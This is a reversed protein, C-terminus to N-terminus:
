PPPALVPGDGPDPVVLPPESNEAPAPASQDPGRPLPRAVGTPTIPEPMPAVAPSTTSTRSPVPLLHPSAAVTPGTPPATTVVPGPMPNSNARAIGRTASAPYFLLAARAQFRVRKSADKGAAELAQAAEPSAPRLRGLSHAAEARVSTSPDNKLVEALAEVIQPFAGVDYQRLEDAAAIRKREDAATRLTNILQPVREAPNMKARKAFLTIAPARTTLAAAVALVLLSHYWRM